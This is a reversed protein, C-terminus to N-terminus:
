AIELRRFLFYAGLCALFANLAIEYQISRPTIGALLFPWNMPYWVGIKSNALLPYGSFLYPTWFPLHGTFIRESVSKQRPYQVGAADWQISASPSTMPIWYFIAVFVALIAPAIVGGFRRRNPGRPATEEARPTHEEM